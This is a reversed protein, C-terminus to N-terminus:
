IKYPFPYEISVQSSRLTFNVSCNIIDWADLSEGKQNGSFSFKFRQIFNEDEIRVREYAKSRSRDMFKWVVRHSGLIM